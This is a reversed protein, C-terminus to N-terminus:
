NIITKGLRWSAPLDIPESNDEAREAPLSSTAKHQASASLARWREAGVEESSRALLVTVDAGVANRVRETQRDVGIRASAMRCSHTFVVPASIFSARIRMVRM